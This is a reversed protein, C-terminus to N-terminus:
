RSKYAKIVRNNGSLDKTVSIDIFENKSLLNTVAEAQLYGIEFIIVGKPNLYLGANNIIEKYAELGDEGGYLSVFPDFDRVGSSLLNMETKSIYPPNSIIIDYSESVTEFWSSNLFSIRQSVGHAKANHKAIMLADESIDVATAITSKTESIISIIVAGTGTGLELLNKSGSKNIESIAIDVLKETDPRPSLVNKNVTYKRGYFEKHGVIKDVPEGKIRRNMFENIKIIISREPASSNEILLDAHSLQSAAMILIRADLGPTDLGQEAFLKLLFRRISKYSLDQLSTLDYKNKKLM